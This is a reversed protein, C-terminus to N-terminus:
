FHLDFNLEIGGIKDKIHQEVILKYREYTRVKVSPRIYKGAMSHALKHVEHKRWFLYNKVFPLLAHKDYVIETLPAKM